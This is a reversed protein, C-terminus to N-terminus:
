RGKRIRMIKFGEQQVVGQVQGHAAEIEAEYPLHRNAVMFVQGGPRVAALAVQVFARGLSPLAGRGAHFPPNMLVFDLGKMGLGATVDAWHFQLTVRNGDDALNLAAAQLAKREAEFLHLERIGPARKLAERSLFGYGAGLDAGRGALDAPLHQALLRSGPDITKWSFLGPCAYLGTAPICRLEGAKLWDSLLERDLRASDKIVRFVRCKHKSYTEVPGVSERCRRELSAAGLDNAAAVLLSGGEKLSTVAQAVNSLVEEKHKTALVIALEVPGTLAEQLFYGRRTLEDALPRYGQLCHLQGPDFRQLYEGPMARFVAVAGAPPSFEPHHCCWAELAATQSEQESMDYENLYLAPHHNM